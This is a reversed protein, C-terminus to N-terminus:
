NSQDQMVFLWLKEFSQVEFSTLQDIQKLQNFYGVPYFYFCVSNLLCGPEYQDFEHTYIIGM